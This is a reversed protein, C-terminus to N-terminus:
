RRKRRKQSRTAVQTSAKKKSQKMKEDVADSVEQDFRAEAQEEEEGGEDGSCESIRQRKPTPEGEDDDGAEKTASAVVGRAANIRHAEMDLKWKQMKVLAEEEYRRREQANLENNWIYGAKRTVDRRTVKNTTSNREINMAAEKAQKSNLRKEEGLDQYKAIVREEIIREKIEEQNDSLWALYATAPRKPPLAMSAGALSGVIHERAIGQAELERQLKRLKYLKRNKKKREKSIREKMKRKESDLDGGGGLDLGYTAV